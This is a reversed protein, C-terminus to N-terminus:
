HSTEVSYNTFLVARKFETFTYSKVDLFYM